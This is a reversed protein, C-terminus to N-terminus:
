QGHLDKMLEPILNVNSTDKSQQEADLQEWPVLLHHIRQKDDRTPGYVWGNMRRDANWRQKEMRSLLEQNGALMDTAEQSTPLAPFEKTWGVARLKVWLHEASRRNAERLNRPLLMWPLGAEHTPAYKRRYNEHTTKAMPDITQQDRLLVNEDAAITHITQQLCCIIEPASDNGQLAKRALLQITEQMAQGEVDNDLCIWVQSINKWTM